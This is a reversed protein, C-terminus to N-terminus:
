HNLRFEASNLLVWFIDALREAERTSEADAVYQMLRELERATPRRSLTALYLMEIRDATKLLPTECAATLTASGRLSTADAVFKGNMLALAQQISTEPESLRGQPAFLSLFQARPSMAPGKGKKGVKVPGNEQFGTALLVSDLFQEGTMGKVTMRAFLRPDDQSSHSRASTRQYADSLCIATIIHNLDFKSEVFARALEDLLEPHSPANRDHFNDVPDVIGLGFHHDWLRNVTARAFFPNDPSTIWDALAVRPSVSPQFDPKKGNLFIASVKRKSNPYNVEHRSVTETLPAFQSKGQREIGAFFAAQNWFQERTWGAFPHDHCQACELQVGLFLRSTVAALNEPQADKVAFFALPNPKEADRFVVEAAKPDAAIPTTLLEHVMKDYGVNTRFRQRLWGEFGSRFYSGNASTAVEPLLIARWINTFHSAHRPDDLLTQVMKRRKAPDKDALFARVDSVQPIRGTLDLSARRLFEADDARAAPQVKNAKHAVALLEDIRRALVRPDPPDARVAAPVILLVGALLIFRAM